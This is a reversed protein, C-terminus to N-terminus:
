NGPGTPTEPVVVWVTEARACLRGDADTVAAEVVIRRGERGAVRGVVVHPEDPRVEAALTVAIRGTVAPWWQADDWHDAFSWASLCDVVAWVFAPSVVDGDSLLPGSALWVGAALGDDDPASIRLGFGDDRQIGCVFCMPYPHREFRPHPARSRAAELTVVPLRSQVAAAPRGEMVLGGGPDLLRLGGDGQEIALPADLPPPQRLTVELPERSHRALLGALYGGHAVGTIGQYAPSVTIATM